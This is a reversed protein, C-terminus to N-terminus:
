AEGGTRKQGLWSFSKTLTGTRPSSYATIQLARVVDILFNSLKTETVKKM